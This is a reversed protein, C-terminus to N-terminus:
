SNFYGPITKTLPATFGSGKKLVKRYLKEISEIAAKSIGTLIRNQPSYIKGNKRSSV